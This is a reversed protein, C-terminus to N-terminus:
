GGQANGEEALLAVLGVVQQGRQGGAEAPLFDVAVDNGFVLVEQLGHGLADGDEALALPFAAQLFPAPLVDEGVQAHIRFLHHVVQGQDSVGRVVDGAHGADAGFGRDLKQAFVFGQIVDKVM